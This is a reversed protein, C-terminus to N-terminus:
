KLREALLADAMEYAFRSGFEIARKREATTYEASGLATTFRFGNVVAAAFQDRLSPVPAKLKAEADALRLALADRHSVERAFAEKLAALEHWAQETM